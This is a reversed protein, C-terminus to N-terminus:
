KASEGSLQGMLFTYLLAEREAQMQPTAAGSHGGAAPEYLWVPNGLSQQKAAMKRGHAPHVRDDNRNTMYLTPPLKANPKLNQYPSYRQMVQWDEAKDPNGYEEIWSPGALLRTYRQMDTLPVRSVVAGFLDPRQVLVASVLLGGNSAGYIGLRPAQTVKAEILAEAVAIFDDFGTQRKLGKAAMTWANGFDGGGRIHAMVFTGGHDLWNLLAFRQYDPLLSLGFGGYGYLLTPQKGDRATGKRSIMTYPISTGDISRAQGREVQYPAADTAGGQVHLKDLQLSTLDLLHLSAPELYSQHQLWLQNGSASHTWVRAQGWDGLGPVERPAASGQLNHVILRSRLERMENVVVFGSTVSVSFVSDRDKPEFLLRPKIQGNVADAYSFILLSGGPLTRGEFPMPSRTEMTLQGQELRITADSPVSLAKLTVGDWLYNAYTNFTIRRKMLLRQKGDTAFDLRWDTSMDKAEATFLPRASSLPTGRKWLRIERPYGSTTMSDPGFNTSVILEDASWWAAWGKSEPLEFGGSAAPLLQRTALDFERFVGADSGGRSLHLLARQPKADIGPAGLGPLNVPQVQASSFVWNSVEERNYADVSFLTQWSPREKRYESLSTSRWVGSPRTTDRFNNYIVDGVTSPYQINFERQTLVRLNSKYRAEFGPMKKIAELARSTEEDVWKTAVPDSLNELHLFTDSATQPQALGSLGASFIVLVGVKSWWGPFGLKNKIM